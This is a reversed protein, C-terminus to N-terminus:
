FLEPQQTKFDTFIKKVEQIYNAKETEALFSAKFSNCILDEIENVTFSLKSYLNWYEENVTTNFFVPDDSGITVLVGNDYLQRVPHESMTKVYKKTFVNSTPCIELPIKNKSIYEMLEKDQVATIGHGIRESHLIKVADWISEPGADEGAHAVAHFGDKHAQVFVPGFLNCPGKIENGGLGIGIIDSSPFAKMMEYNEQANELGFTRSVDVLLKITINKESKIKAINKSFNEVMDKYSFGKKIFSSPAFFAECYKVNNEELYDAFDSFVLDFDQVETFMDQVKLFSAIFGSLDDYDFLSKEEQESMSKGFRKKYLKKVSAMKIVAEIHIHLEAKPVQKLLSFFDAKKMILNLSRKGIDKFIEGFSVKDNIIILQFFILLSEENKYRCIKCFEKCFFM